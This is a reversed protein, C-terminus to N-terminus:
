CLKLAEVLMRMGDANMELEVGNARVTATKGPIKGVIPRLADTVDIPAQRKQGDGRVNGRELGNYKWYWGDFTSTVLGKERCFEARTIGDGRALFEQVAALKFEPTYVNPEKKQPALRDAASEPIAAANIEEEM